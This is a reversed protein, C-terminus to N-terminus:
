LYKTVVIKSTSKFSYLYRVLADLQLIMLILHGAMKAFVIPKKVMLRASHM